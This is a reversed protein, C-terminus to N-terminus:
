GSREIRATGAADRRVQFRVPIREALAVVHTVVGVMRDGRSALNELTTAVVDLTEPDLTGFGEDLMISELSAATASLGALQESLALALALSAQFTEGGSLTRVSRRLGADAHDVVAFDGGDSVLDYQGGSLERLIVSAGAVLAATAEELLWRTFNNAQLHRGLARAVTARQEHEAVQELLTAAQERRELVRALDAEARQAALAAAQRLAAPEATRAVAAPLAQGATAFLTV